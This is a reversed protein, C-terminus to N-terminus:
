GFFCHYILSILKKCLQQLYTNTMKNKKTDYLKREIETFNIWIIKEEYGLINVQDNVDIKRHRICINNLINNWIYEKNLFNQNKIKKINNNLDNFNIKINREDDELKLNIFKACNQLGILNIFPTGSVYWYYNSSINSILKSMYKSLSSSTLLEGFIEHGEDLILRHFNFFEFIPNNLKKINEINNNLINNNFYLQLINNREEFNFNSPNCPYYYLTPYFKFNMIFQHSSIIIDSELFDNFILNNYSSKTIITLIKLKTSCRKIESEWQKILHSPCIILTAKTNIKNNSIINKIKNLPNSIILAISLITKGLGMEDALIGGKTKINFFIPNDIKQNFIPDYLINNDYFKIYYAYDIISNNNNEIEIMKSLSKYQYDYLTLKFNDINFKKKLTLKPIYSKNLFDSKSFNLSQSFNIRILFNFGISNNKFDSILHTDIYVTFIITSCSVNDYEITWLPYNNLLEIFIYNELKSNSIYDTYKIINNLEYKFTVHDEISVIKINTIKDNIDQDIFLHGKFIEM